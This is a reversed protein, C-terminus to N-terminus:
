IADQMQFYLDEFTPLIKDAEFKNKRDRQKANFHQWTFKDDKNKKMNKLYLYDKGKFKQRM